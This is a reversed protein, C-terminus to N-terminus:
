QVPFFGLCILVLSCSNYELSTPRWIAQLELHDYKPVVVNGKVTVYFVGYGGGPKLRNTGTCAAQWIWCSETGGSRDVKALFREVDDLIKRM